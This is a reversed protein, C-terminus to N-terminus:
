KITLENLQVQSDSQHDAKKNVITGRYETKGTKLDAVIVSAYEFGHEAEPEETALLYINGDKIITALSKMDKEGLPVQFENVAKKQELDYVIVRIKGEKEETVYLNTDDYYNGPGVLAAIEKPLKVEESKKENVNYVVLGNEVNQEEIEGNELQKQENVSKYYLIYDAADMSNVEPLETYDTYVNKRKNPESLITEESLLKKDSLNFSYLHVESTEQGGDNTVLYNKTFVNVRGDTFQVDNLEVTSYEEEKPVPMKLSIEEKDKKDLAAIHFNFKQRNDKFQYEVQAYVINRKDEYFFDPSNKGRMFSRYKRKLNEIQEGDYDMSKIQTFFSRESAYESGESSIEVMESATETENGYFGRLILNEVTKSNGEQKKIIYEPLQSISYASHIYFSSIALLIVVILSSIKWYRKM